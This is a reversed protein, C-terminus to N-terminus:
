FFRVSKEYVEATKASKQSSNRWFRFILHKSLNKFGYNEVLMDGIKPPEKLYDPVVVDESLLFSFFLMLYIM